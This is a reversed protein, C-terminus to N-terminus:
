DNQVEEKAKLKIEYRTLIESGVVFFLIAGQLMTAAASPIGMTQIMFGGVHIIAFLFAVM